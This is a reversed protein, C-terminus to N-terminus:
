EDFDHSEDQNGWQIKEAKDLLDTQEDLDLFLGAINRAHAKLEITEEGSLEEMYQISASVRDFPDQISHIENPIVIGLLDLLDFFEELLDQNM